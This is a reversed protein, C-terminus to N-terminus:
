GKLNKQPDRLLRFIFGSLRGLSFGSCFGSVSLVVIEFNTDQLRQPDSSLEYGFFYKTCFVVVVIFIVSKTGPARILYHKRDVELESFIIQLLGFGLGLLSIAFWVGVTLFNFNLAISLTHISLCLLLTPIVCLRGLSIVRTKVLQSGMYVLYLLAIYVWLPTHMSSQIFFIYADRM